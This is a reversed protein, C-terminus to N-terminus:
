KGISSKWCFQWSKAGVDDHHEDLVECKLSAPIDDGPHSQRNHEDLSFPSSQSFSSFRSFASQRQAIRPRNCYLGTLYRSPFFAQQRHHSKTSLRRSLSSHTPIPSITPQDDTSFPQSLHPHVHVYSRSLALCLFSTGGERFITLKTKRKSNQKHYTVSNHSLLNSSSVSYLYQDNM